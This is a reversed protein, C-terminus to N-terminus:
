QVGFAQSFDFLVDSLQVLQNIFNKEGRPEVGFRHVQTRGFLDIQGSQGAFLARTGPDLQIQAGMGFGDDDHAHGSQQAAQESVQNVIRQSM